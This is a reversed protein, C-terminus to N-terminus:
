QMLEHASSKSESTINIHSSKVIKKSVASEGVMGGGPKLNVRGWSPRQAVVGGVCGRVENVRLASAKGILQSETKYKM